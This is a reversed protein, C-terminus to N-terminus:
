IMGARWMKISSLIRRQSIMKKPYDRAEIGDFSVGRYSVKQLTLGKGQM